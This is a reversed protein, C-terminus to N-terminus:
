AHSLFQQCLIQWAQKKLSPHILLDNLSPLSVIADVVEGFAIGQTGAPKDDPHDCPFVHDSSIRLAHMMAMLLHWRPDQDDDWFSELDASWCWLENPYRNALAETQVSDVSIRLDRWSVVGLAEALNV